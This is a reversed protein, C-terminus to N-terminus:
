VVYRFVTHRAPGVRARQAVPLAAMAPRSFWAFSEVAMMALFSLCSASFWLQVVARGWLGFVGLPLVRVRLMDLVVALVVLAARL